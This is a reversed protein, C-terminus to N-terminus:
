RREAHTAGDIAVRLGRGQLVFDGIMTEPADAERERVEYARVGGAKVQPQVKPEPTGAQACACLVCLSLPWRRSRAIVACLMALIAAPCPQLHLGVPTM